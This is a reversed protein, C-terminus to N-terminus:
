AESSIRLNFVITLTQDCFEDSLVVGFLLPLAVGVTVKIIAAKLATNRQASVAVMASLM